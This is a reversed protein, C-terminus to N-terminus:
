ETQHRYAPGELTPWPSLRFPLAPSRFFSRQFCRHCNPSDYLQTPPLPLTHAGLLLGGAPSLEGATGNERSARGSSPSKFLRATPAQVQTVTRRPWLCSVRKQQHRVDLSSVQLPDGVDGARMKKTVLDTVFSNSALLRLRDKMVDSTFGIEPDIVPARGITSLPHPSFPFPWQESSEMSNLRCCLRLRSGAPARSGYRRIKAPIVLRSAIRDHWSRANPISEVTM